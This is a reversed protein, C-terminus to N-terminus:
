SSMDMDFLDVDDPLLLLLLLLLLETWIWSDVPATAHGMSCETACARTLRCM